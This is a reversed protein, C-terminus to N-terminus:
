LRTTIGRALTTLRDEILAQDHPDAYALSVVFSASGYNM